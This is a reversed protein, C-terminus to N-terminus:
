CNRRASAPRIDGFMCGRHQGPTLHLAITVGLQGREEVKGNDVTVDSLFFRFNSKVSLCM